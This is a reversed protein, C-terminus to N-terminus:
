AAMSGPKGSAVSGVSPRQTDRVRVGEGGDQKTPEGGGHKTPM